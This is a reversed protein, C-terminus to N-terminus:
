RKPAVKKFGILRARDVLARDIEDAVTTRDFDSLEKLWERWEASGRVVLANPKPPKETPKPDPKKKAM